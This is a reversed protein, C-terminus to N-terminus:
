DDTHPQLGRIVENSVDADVRSACLFLKLSCRMKKPLVAVGCFDVQHDLWRKKRFSFGYRFCYLGNLINGRKSVLIDGDTRCTYGGIGNNRFQCFSSHISWRREPGSNINKVLYITVTKCSRSYCAQIDISFVTIRNIGM